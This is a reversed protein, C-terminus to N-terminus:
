CVSAVSFSAFSGYVAFDIEWCYIMRRTDVRKFASNTHCLCLWSMMMIGAGFSLLVCVLHMFSWTIVSFLYERAASIHEWRVRRWVVKIDDRKTRWPNKHACRLNVSNWWIHSECRALWSHSWRTSRNERDGGQIDAWMAFQPWSHM